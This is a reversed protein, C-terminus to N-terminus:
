RSEKIMRGRVSQIPRANMPYMRAFIAIQEPSLQQPQKMVMWLVGESCPPTTLSGMYTYYNRDKPLLENLDIAVGEPSYDVNKELPLNNWLTQVLPHLQGRELLVAVVALRGDLDKHVLHAVMEFGKGNIREESPRHFHFQVLDYYRGMVQLSSGPGVNVQVTHGNDVIRFQTPKYDFRIPELEVKIGERIDIPSQREGSGCLQWEPKLVGWNAPGGEGDYSWHIDHHALPTGAAAPGHAAHADVSVVPSRVVRPKPRPPPVYAPVRQVEPPAEARVPREVPREAAPEAKPPPAPKDIFNKKIPLAPEAGHEGKAESVQAVVPKEAGKAPRYDAARLEPKAQATQAAKAANKALASIDGGGAPKCVDRWLKEDVSGAAVPMDKEVKVKEDKVVASDADLYVRKITAFTQNRCDYRNLAKVAAYGATAAEADSLVIRGWAVKTGPDSQLISARDLEITRKKDSAITQWDAALASSMGALALLAVLPRLRYRM